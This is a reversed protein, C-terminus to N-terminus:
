AFVILKGLVDNVIFISQLYALEVTFVSGGASPFKCVQKSRVAAAFHLPFERLFGAEILGYYYCFFLM